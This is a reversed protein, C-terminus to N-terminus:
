KSAELHSGVLFLDVPYSRVRGNEDRYQVYGDKVALVENREAHKDFPDKTEYIWVQGPQINPAFIDPHDLSLIVGHVFAWGLFLLAFVCILFEHLKM